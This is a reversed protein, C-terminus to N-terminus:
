RSRVPWAAVPQSKLEEPVIRIQLWQLVEIRVAGADTGYVELWQLIM